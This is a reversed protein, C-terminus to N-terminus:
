VKGVPLARPTNLPSVLTLRPMVGEQAPPHWLVESNGGPGTEQQRDAEAHKWQSEEQM